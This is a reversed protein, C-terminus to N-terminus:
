RGFARAALRGPGLWVRTPRVDIRAASLRDYQELTLGRREIASAYKEVFAPCSSPAVGRAVSARGAIVVVDGGGPGCNFHLAIRPQREINGIKRAGPESFVVLTGLEHVLWVPTPWPGGRASVTTLWAVQDREIRRLAADPLTM